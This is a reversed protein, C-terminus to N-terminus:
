MIVQKLNLEDDVLLVHAKKGPAISGVEDYIGISQAPNRTAAFIADALPIDFSVAKRMCDYLNTASGAITEGDTLTAKGDKMWVAQGGLSYTGNPMGTAMMSDSILVMRESGMMSFTARVVAGHIHYGDCILEMRCEPDDFAAGIVGPNRHAFPPMANYLHTVQRAGHKFAECATDYDATTHAISIRVEGALEDITEMSGPLEPALDCLKFLGGAKEQVRRFMAADPAHLYAGNQAGKKAESIFPGEMNIGVLAADNSEAQYTAAAEAIQTLKDEPYTMTAPCIAAVGIQAQYKALTSIAEHTGDCFDRGMCGHFHLDVLGPVAYLGDMDVADASVEASAIRDDSISLGGTKFTGDPQYVRLNSFEM